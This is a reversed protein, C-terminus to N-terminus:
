LLGKITAGVPEVFIPIVTLLLAAGVVISIASGFGAALMPEESNEQHLRRCVFGLFIGVAVLAIGAGLQVWGCIYTYNLMHESLEEAKTGLKTALLELLERTGDDM